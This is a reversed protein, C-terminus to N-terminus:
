VKAKNTRKGLYFTKVHTGERWVLYAYKGSRVRISARAYDYRGWPGSNDLFRVYISPPEQKTRCKVSRVSKRKKKM